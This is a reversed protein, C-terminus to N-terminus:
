ARDMPCDAQRQAAVGTGSVSGGHAHRDAARRQQVTDTGTIGPRDWRDPHEAHIIPRPALAMVVARDQAIKLASPNTRREKTHVRRSQILQFSACPEAAVLLRQKGNGYKHIVFCSVTDRRNIGSCERPSKSPRWTM